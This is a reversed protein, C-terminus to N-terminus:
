AGRALTILYIGAAGARGAVRSIENLTSGTTWVDDVLLINRNRVALCDRLKYCDLINLKREALGLEGQRRTKKVKMINAAFPIRIIGSLSGAILDM